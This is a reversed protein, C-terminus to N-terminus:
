EPNERLLLQHLTAPTVYRIHLLSKTEDIVMGSFVPIEQGKREEGAGTGLDASEVGQDRDARTKPRLSYVGVTIIGLEDTYGSKAAESITADTVVFERYNGEKLSSYFGQIRAGGSQTGDPRKTPKLVWFNAEHLLVQKQSVIEGVRSKMTSFEKPLEQGPVVTTEKEPHTNMGDVLVRFGVTDNTFNRVVVQYVEDKQLAVYARDHIFHILRDEYAGQRNKVQICVPFNSAFANDGDLERPETKVIGSTVLLPKMTAMDVLGCTFNLSNTKKFFGVIISSLPKGDVMIQGLAEKSRGSLIDEPKIQVLKMKEQLQDTPMVVYNNPSLKNSVLRREMDQAMQMPTQMFVSEADKLKSGEALTFKSVSVRNMGSHPIFTAMQGAIRHISVAQDEPVPTIIVPSNKDNKSILVPTGSSKLQWAFINQPIGMVGALNNVCMSMYDNLESLSVKGDLSRDASGLMAEAFWYAFLSMEQEKLFHGCFGTDSSAMLYLNGFNRFSDSAVRNADGAPDIPFTDLVLLKTSAPSRSIIACIEKLSITGQEPNGPDYRSLDFCLEVKNGGRVPVVYGSLYVILTGYKERDAPKGEIASQIRKLDDGAPGAIYELAYETNRHFVGAVHKAGNQMWESRKRESDAANAGPNESLNVVVAKHTAAIAMHAPNMLLFGGALLFIFAAYHVSSLTSISNKIRNTM